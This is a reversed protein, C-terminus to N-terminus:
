FDNSYYLDDWEELKMDQTAIEWAVLQVSDVLCKTMWELDGKSKAIELLDAIYCEFDLREFQLKGNENRKFM